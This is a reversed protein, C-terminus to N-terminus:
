KKEFGFSNDGWWPTYFPSYYYSGYPMQRFSLSIYTNEWPKYNLEARSLYVKSFDNKGLQPISSYPSFSFAVDARANLNDAFAYRMSNTYTGLSLGHGGFTTFSMDVSHRMTFNEPNFWGFMFALPSTDGLRTISVQSEQQVQSKLQAASSGCVIALAAAIALAKKM